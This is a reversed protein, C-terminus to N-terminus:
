WVVWAELAMKRPLCSSHTPNLILPLLWAWKVWIEGNWQMRVVIELKKENWWKVCMM